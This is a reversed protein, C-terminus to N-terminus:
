RKRKRKGAWREKNEPGPYREVLRRELRIMKNRPGRKVTLVNGGNRQKKSYRKNPDAHKTIGWKLFNGDRDLKKYLTAPRGDVKNAHVGLIRGAKKLHGVRAFSSGSAWAVSGALAWGRKGKARGAKYAKYGDYAAFGANVALWFYNGDPDTYMIPNSSAYAYGNQTKPDDTDGGEPDVSLFVGENPQYYRAILYYLKTEDDYRYGKYRIPNAAAMSGSQSLINGWADYTYTAVVTGSSNTLGTIEKLMNYTYYYNQGGKSMVLPYGEPDYLYEATITGSADTEFLVNIGEGYHYNTTQGGTTKSTRRGQDDYQYTAVTGGALTKTSILQDFKNYSYIYQGDKTRNGNADYSYTQGDVATLRNNGDYSYTTDTTLGNQTASRNLRNGAGDYTYTESLQAASINQTLLQNGKDYRFAKNGASSTVSEILGIADYGLKEELLVATGKVVKLTDMQQNTDYTYNTHVGNVYRRQLPEGTPYYDYAGIVSGNRHITKLQDASDFGFRQSFSVANSTGKIDTLTETLSYGYEVKQGGNTVTKLKDTVDYTFSTVANTEGNTISTTNGNVDYKYNWKLNNNIRINTLQGAADYENKIVSGNPMTEFELNGLADYSFSTVQGMPETRSVLEDQANYSFTTAFKRPNQLSKLNGNTDYEYSTRNGNEDIMAKLQELENYEFAVKNGKPDTVEKANGYKDNITSTKRGLADAFSTQYNQMADYAYEEPVGGPPTMSKLNGYPEYYTYSAAEGLSNTETIVDGYANYKYTTTGDADTVTLPQSFNNYTYSVFNGLVDTTKILNGKTDYENVTKSGNPAVENLINYNADYTFSSISGLPDKVSNIIYNNNLQYVTEAGNADFESATFNGIDYTYTTSSAKDAIAPQIVRELFGANYEYQTLQSKSDIIGTLEQNANYNYTTTSGTTADAFVTSTKLRGEPTYTFAFKKVGAFTGSEIRGNVYNLTLTRGTADTIGSLRGNADRVYSVKNKNRDEAYDIPYIRSDVEPNNILDRYVIRNGNFDTLVFADANAKTLTLYTGAPATYTGTTANYTFLQVTGDSDQYIVDRNPFESVSESGVFSWGYGIPSDEVAKSNYTRSFSFGSNGRGIVSFDTAELVLNGTGLNVYGQGDSLGHEAYSWYSELGLRSIPYYTITLKPSYNLMGGADGSYFKKYTALTENSGKLMLGLNQSPTDMWKQVTEAKIPWKFLPPETAATDLAGITQSSLLTPTYDGGKNTWLSSLTRRNWTARNEEWANSTEYLQVSTATDNWVSSLRLNLQANMIKAGRPLSGMDFQLLSRVVNNTTSNKYLGAGLEHDAGGTTDPLASRITTDNLAYNPQYVKVTPDLIVPYVRNPDQLWSMDPKLTLTLQDGTQQAEVKIADTWAGEPIPNPLNSVFGEPTSSDMMFPKEIAFLRDKTVTDVLYLYGDSTRELTMGTIQFDFSYSLPETGIPKEKLVIDEKIKTNGVTYVLDTNPYIEEYTVQNEETVAGVAAAEKGKQKITEIEVTKGQQKLSVLPEDSATEAAFSAEFDNKANQHRGNQKEVLTNDIPVWEKTKKDQVHIPEPSIEMRHAGDEQQFVQTTATREEILEIEEQFSPTKVEQVPLVEPRTVSNTDAEVSQLPSILSICMVTAILSLFYKKM